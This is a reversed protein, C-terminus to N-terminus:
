LSIEVARPFDWRASDGTCADDVDGRGRCGNGPLERVLPEDERDRGVCFGGGAGGMSCWDGLRARPAPGGGWVLWRGCGGGDMERTASRAVRARAASTPTVQWSVRWPWAGGRRSTKGVVGERWEKEEM